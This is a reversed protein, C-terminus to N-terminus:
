LIDDPSPDKYEDKDSTSTVLENVKQKIKTANKSVYEKADDVVKVTSDHAKDITKSVKVVTDVPAQAKDLTLEVLKISPRVEDITRDTTKLVTALRSLVVILIVLAVVGLIPLLQLCIQELEYLFDM